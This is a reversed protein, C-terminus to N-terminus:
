PVDLRNLRPGSAPSEQRCPPSRTVSISSLKDSSIVFLPQNAGKSANTAPISVEKVGQESELMGKTIPYTPPTPWRSVLRASQSDTVKAAPAATVNVTNPTTAESAPLSIPVEAEHHYIMKPIRMIRIANCVQPTKSIM